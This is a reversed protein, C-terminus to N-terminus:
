ALPLEEKKNEKLNITSNLPAPISNV